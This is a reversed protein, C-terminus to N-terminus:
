SFYTSNTYLKGAQVAINYIHTCCQVDGDKRNFRCCFHVKDRKDLAKYQVKVCDEFRVLMTDNPSANDRTVSIISCTIGLRDTVELLKKCLYAGDHVPNILEIIDLLMTESKFDHTTLHRTVAIYDLKNNGVWGDTTLAFRGGSQIHYQCKDRIIIEAAEYRAKLDGM